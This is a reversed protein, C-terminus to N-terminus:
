ARSGLGRQGSPGVIWRWNESRALHPLGYGERTTHFMVVNINKDLHDRSRSDCGHVHGM